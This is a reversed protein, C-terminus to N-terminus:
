YLNCELLLFSALLSVISGINIILGSKRSAMSPVVLQVLRMISFLNTAFVAEAQDVDFDVVAGGGGAGANNMLIDIHGEKALISEIVAKCEERNLVDLQVKEIGEPLTTMKNLSRATAYVKCGQSFFEKATSSGIGGDSCGTIVVIRAM